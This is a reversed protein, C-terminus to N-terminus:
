KRLGLRSILTHYRSADERSLYALLRRRHGILQMLGRQSHHDRPYAKLHRTLGEIRRTIIAVQVETSGTDQEHVKFEQIVVKKEEKEM